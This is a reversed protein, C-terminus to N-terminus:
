STPDPATNDQFTQEPDTKEEFTPDPDTKKISGLLDCGSGGMYVLRIGQVIYVNFINIKMSCTLINLFSFVMSFAPTNFKVFM